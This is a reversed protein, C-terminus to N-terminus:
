DTLVPLLMPCARISASSHRYMFAGALLSHSKLSPNAWNSQLLASAFGDYMVSTILDTYVSVLVVHNFALSSSHM